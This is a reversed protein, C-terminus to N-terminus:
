IYADVCSQVFAVRNEPRAASSFGRSWTWGGLSINIVRAPNANAPVGSVSGGSTWVIADAIDSTYGGCKGLM